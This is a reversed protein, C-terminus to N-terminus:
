EPQQDDEQDSPAPETVPPESESPPSTEDEISQSAPTESPELEAESGKLVRKIVDSTHKVFGKGFVSEVITEKKEKERPTLVAGAQVLIMDQGFVTEAKQLAVTHDSTLALETVAADDLNILMDALHGLARGDKSSVPMGLWQVLRKGAPLVPLVKDKNQVFILDEGIKSIAEYPLWSEQGSLPAGMRLAMGTVKKEADIYINQVTGLMRGEELSAVWVGKIDKLWATEM